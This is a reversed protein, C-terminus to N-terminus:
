ARRRLEEGFANKWERSRLNEFGWALYEGPIESLKKGTHKGFPIQTNTTIRLDNIILEATQPAGQPVFQRHTGCAACLAQVHRTGNEFVRDVLNFVQETCKECLIRRDNNNIQTM